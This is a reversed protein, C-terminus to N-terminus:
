PPGQRGYALLETRVSSGKEANYSICEQISRMRTPLVDLVPRSRAYTKVSCLLSGTNLMQKESAWHPQCLAAPM